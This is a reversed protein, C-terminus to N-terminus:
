LQDTGVSPNALKASTIGKDAVGVTPDSATGTIAIADGAKVSTVGSVGGSLAFAVATLPIRGNPLVSVNANNVAVVDLYRSSGSPFDNPNLGGMTKGGLVFSVTQNPTTAIGNQTESFILTGGTAADYVRVIIDEMSDGSLTTAVNNFPIVRSTPEQALLGSPAVLVMALVLVFGLKAKM